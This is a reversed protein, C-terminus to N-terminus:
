RINNDKPSFHQVVAVIPVLLFIGYDIDGYLNQLFSLILSVIFLWGIDM